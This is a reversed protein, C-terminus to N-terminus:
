MENKRPDNNLAVVPNFYAGSFPGFIEILAFLIFAVAISDALVAITIGSNFIHYFLIIPSIAAIVLFM